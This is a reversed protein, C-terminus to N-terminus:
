KSAPPLPQLTYSSSPVATGLVALPLRINPNELDYLGVLVQLDAESELPPLVLDHSDQVIEQARWSTTPRQWNAPGNSSQVLPASDAQGVHVFVGYDIDTPASSQWFLDVTLQEDRRNLQYGALSIGEGFVIGELPIASDPLSTVIPWSAVEVWGATVWRGAGFQDAKLTTNGNTLQMQVRYRGNAAFPLPINLLTQGYSGAPWQEAPYDGSGLPSTQEAITRGWFDVLRLHVATDAAPKEEAYWVLNGLAWLGARFEDAQWNLSVLQLGAEDYSAIGKEPPPPEWSPITTSGVVEFPTGLSATVDYPIPPMGASLPLWLQQRYTGGAAATAAQPLTLNACGQSWVAQHSDQLRLCVAPPRKEAASTQWFLSVWVGAESFREEIQIAQLQYSGQVLNVALAETPLSSITDARDLLNLQLSAWSAPFVATDTQLRQEALWDPILQRNFYTPPPAAVFWIRDYMADLRTLEQLAISQDSVGFTPVATYPLDLAYYDYTTMMISDHWLVFDGPQQRAEIYSALARVDDKVIPPAQITQQLMQGSLAIAVLGIAAAAVRQQRWLTAVGHGMLLFWPIALVTLHRPNSYNAKFWSAAFFALLTLLVGGAGLLFVRWRRAKAAFGVTAMGLIGLLAFPLLRWGPAALPAASGLSFTNIGEQVLVWLQRQSFAYFQPLSLLELLHPAVIVGGVLLVGAAALWRGWQPRKQLALLVLVALAFALVFIGTYHTGVLLLGSIALLVYHQRQSGPQMVQWLLRYFILTEFILLAYMRAERAYWYFFPSVLALLLTFVATQRGWIVKGVHYFGALGLLMFFVSPLRYAFETGGAARQWLHLILFYFPPHLDPSSKGQVINRNAFIQTFSQEARIVTLAEDRWLSDGDLQHVYLAFAGLLVLALLWLGSPFPRKRNETRNSSM